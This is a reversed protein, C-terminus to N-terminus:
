VVYKGGCVFCDLGVKSKPRYELLWGVTVGKLGVSRFVVVVEGAFSSRKVYVGGVM